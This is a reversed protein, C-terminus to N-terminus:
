VLVPVYSFTNHVPLSQMKVSDLELYHPSRKTGGGAPLLASELGKEEPDPFPGLEPGRGPGPVFDPVRATSPVLGLFPLHQSKPTSITPRRRWFPGHAPNQIRECINVNVGTGPGARREEDLDM